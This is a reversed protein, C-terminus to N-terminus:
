KALPDPRFQFKVVKQHQGKGGLTEPRGEIHWPAYTMFASWLGRGKWGAKPDDIRGHAARTYFGLPYPVVLNVWEGREPLLAQMANSNVAYSMPVDKGLGATDFRDVMMLYLLDANLHSGQFTPGAQRYLAWGEPCHEGTAAPGNLAKCKRRDFATMHDSGRWAAWAVGQTDVAIGGERAVEAPPRYVEAKCTEPPNPGLELRVIQRTTTGIGTCWVSGDAPSVSVSYCGFEIRHDKTPDVPEKPETWPKTIKGDGNTDLVGPCWGQAAQDDKTEDYIRTNIWAVGSGIGFFLKSDPPPGFENHDTTFCTDILTFQQARPDYFAVQKNSNGLSYYQTFKNTSGPRCWAPQHDAARMRSAFWVRGRHDFISSRPQAEGRWIVEKGWYPSPTVPPKGTYGMPPLNGERKPIKLQGATHTAPDLWLFEDQFQDTIYLRGSANVTPDRHDSAAVTHSFTKDTGWDWLTVVLNREVGRPRPPAQKPLEGAAIRDTWDAFMSRQSGLQMFDAVMSPGVPGVSVRHDWAEETSDFTGLNPSIERTARSGLQHCMMCRKVAYIVDTESHEGPPVRILSFWYNAPYIQAAVRADPAVVANLDLRQGPRAAVRPSDVLGYGRVFVLYTASPLDPLIYRGQDDTVVIRIFRAPLDTTEAVVWAGAEPGNVSTVIGGIDDADIAVARESRQQADLWTLSAVLVGVVALIRISRAAHLKM